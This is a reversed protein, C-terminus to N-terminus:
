GFWRRPEPLRGVALMIRFAAVSVVAGAVILVVGEPSSYAASGEPRLALLVLIVWPALLGLVAAGRVWSQRADVEARVAADARVASSLSRLVPVLETGGVQRAMRLTELIRDAVPDSLAVKLRDLSTEFHGSAALDRAFGAFAPRLPTPASTQLSALADPLAFGARVSAILLDCVDPWLGRRIKLLRRARGRLWLVPAAAGALAALLAFAPVQTLLWALAAALVAVGACALILVSVSLHAFGAEALVMAGRSRRPAPRGTGASAPWLRPALMLLIGAGLLAGLLITM